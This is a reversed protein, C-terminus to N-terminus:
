YLLALLRELASRREPPTPALMDERQLISLLKRPAVDKYGVIEVHGADVEVNVLQPYGDVVPQYQEALSFVYDSELCNGDQTRRRCTDREDTVVKLYRRVSPLVAGPRRIFDSNPTIENWNDGTVLWCMGPLAGLSLWQLATVGCTSSVAIGSIPASITALRINADGHRWDGRRELELAKRAVLGGMSHGIVTLRRDRLRSALEDLAGILQGSSVVLSDRDNYSFCVSQQGHFAYLQALSRFNGASGNCGHVLVTVPYNSNFRLTRDPSDTCPGLHAISVAVDPPPRRGPEIPQLEPEYPSFACGALALLALALFLRARKRM